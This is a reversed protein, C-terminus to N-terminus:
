SPRRRLLPLLGIAALGLGMFALSSPEPTSTVSPSEFLAFAASGQNTPTSLDFSLTLSSQPPVEGICSLSDGSVTCGSSADSVSSANPSGIEFDEWTVTSANLITETVTYTFIGPVNNGAFTNTLGLDVNLYGPTETFDKVVNLTGTLSAPNDTYSCSPMSEGASASGVTCSDITNAKGPSALWFFAAAGLITSLKINKM